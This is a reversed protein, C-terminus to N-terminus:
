QDMENMDEEDWEWDSFENDYDDLGSSEVPYSSPTCAMYAVGSNHGSCECTYNDSPVASKAVRKAFITALRKIPYKREPMLKRASFISGNTEMALPTCIGLNSKPITLAHRTEADGEPFRKSYVMERDMGFFHRLKRTKEFDFETDALIHLNVGEEQMFQLISSYDFLMNGAACNSCSLLIFTKSVGPRFDLRSAVSIAQLIDSNTGNNANIHDFYQELKQHDHTFVSNEYYISRPTDFPAVGGFTVVAYRNNTIGNARLQEEITDVVTMINKNEKLNVNCPKAEVIFVVDSSRPIEPAALEVFTGEPVYSGNTLQCFICKDPVRMPIKSSACAEIYALAATCAGKNAPHGQKVENSNSGLDLCIEYFPKPDVTDACASLMGSKFYYDCVASVEQPVVVQVTAPKMKQKCGKVSWSDTFESLDTTINNYSTTYEDFPENNMTGLLGATQGFYWGSVEFWCLDFQVNCSLSFETDSTITLIDLERTITVGGLKLPLLYTPDGNITISDTGLDIEILQDNAIFSLKRTSVVDRSSVNVSPELLLTFNGQFFDHSLLYSCQMNRHNDTMEEFRLNLGVFRQDFTMYHRSDILLARSYYPPLWTKPDLHSKLNYIYRIVSSNTTTLVNQIKALVRLEPIEEYRPTENFAHWSMPLKQELDMVGAEPDFVFKTKPVRYKDATELANNAYNNLKNLLLAYLKHLRTELELEKAVWELKEVIEKYKQIVFNVQEIKQLEKIEEWIETLVENLETGFPVLKFYKEKLFNWIIVSYKRINTIADNSKIDRYLRDVDQTFSSVKNFYPSEALENTRKYIFDFLEKSLDWLASEVQSIFKFVHPEIRKFVGKWYNTLNAWAKAWLNEVYKIFSIHLDKVFRDYKHVGQELLESVYQLGEGRFFRGVHILFENYSKKINEILWKISERLAQGSDGMSQWIESFIKPLSEIHDKIALEDLIALLFNIVDKIYFDNAEYSENIFNRLETIDDELESLERLDDFFASNYRKATDWMIDMSEVAESYIAKIWFDLGDSFSSYIGSSVTFIKEKLEEKMQPRWHFRGTVLRSHNMKLYSTVDIIRIEEYNRWIDLYASRTDPITGIMQLNQSDDETLNVEARIFKNLLDIYIYGTNNTEPTDWVSANFGYIPHQIYPKGYLRVCRSPTTRIYEFQKEDLNLLALLQGSKETFYQKKYSASAETKYESPKAAMSGNFQLDIDSAEHNAYVKVTYNAHGLEKQLDKILAGMKIAHTEDNAYDIVLNTNLLEVVGRYYKGKISVDKELYPHGITFVVTQHDLDVGETLPQKKWDLGTRVSKMDDDLYTNWKFVANSVIHDDTVSYSGEAGLNRKPYSLGVVYDHSVVGDRTKNTLELNYALWADESLELRSSGKIKNPAVNDYSSTWVVTRNPHSAVLKVEHGSPKAVHTLEGSLKFNGANKLEYVELRKVDVLEQPKSKDQKNVYKIGLPKMENELTIDRTVTTVAGKTDKVSKYVGNLVQKDNYKAKIVGNDNGNKERLNYEIEARHRSLLPVEIEINGKAESQGAKENFTSQSKFFAKDSPWSAQAHRITKPGKTNFDFETKLWSMTPLPTSANFYGHMNSLDKFALNLDALQNSAPSAMSAVVNHFKDAVDYSGKVLFTDEDKYKPTVLKTYFERRLKNKRLMHFDGEVVSVDKKEGWELHALAQLDTANKYSVRGLCNKQADKSKYKGEIFFEPKVGKKAILNGRYRFNLNHTDGVPKPLLTVLAAQIDDQSKYNLTGNAELKWQSDVDMKVATSLKQFNKNPNMYKASALVNRPKTNPRQLHSELALQMNEALIWTWACSGRGVNEGIRYEGAVKGGDKKLNLDSHLKVNEIGLEKWPTELSVDGVTHGKGRPRFQGNFNIRKLEPVSSEVLMSFDAGTEESASYGGSIQCMKGEQIASFQFNHGKGNGQPESISFEIVGDPGGASPQVRLRTDAPYGNVMKVIGNLGYTHTNRYLKGSISYENPDKPSQTLSGHMSINRFDEIPTWVEVDIADNKNSARTGYDVREGNRGVVTLDFSLEPHPKTLVKLSTEALKLPLMTTSIHGNANVLHSPDKHWATGVKIENVVDNDTVSLQFDVTNDKDNFDNKFYARCAYYPVVDTNLVFDVSSETFSEEIELAAALTVFTSPTHSTLNGRYVNEELQLKGSVSMESLMMLPTKVVIQVTHENPKVSDVLKKYEVQVSTVKPESSSDRLVFKVNESFTFQNLDFSYQVISKFERVADFPTNLTFVNLANVYDPYYLRDKFDIRGEPWQVHGVVLYFDLVEQIDVGGHLSDFVVPDVEFNVTYSMFENYDVQSPDYDRPDVGSPRFDDDYLVELQVKNGGLQKLLKSKPHGNIKVGGKHQALRGHLELVFQDKAVFKAVFGSEEFGALPTYVTYSYEFDTINDMRWVGTFGLTANNYTGRVDVTTPKVKAVVAAQKFNEIPTAVSLKVDFDMISVFDALVEVGLAGDPSRVEAVVHRQKENLGFRAELNRYKELPTTIYITLKSDALKRIYGDVNFTFQRNDFDLTAAGKIDHKDSLSLQAALGGKRYGEFPTVIFVTGSINDNPGKKTVEWTSKVSYENLEVPGSHILSVLTDYKKKDQYHSLKISAEPIGKVTSNVGVLFDVSLVPGQMKHDSKFTLDLEQNDAWLLTSNALWLNDSSYLGAKFSNHRWGQFPTNLEAHVWNNIEKGPMLGVNYSFTILDNTSWSLRASGHYQPGGTFAEFGASITRDPYTIMVNGDYRDNGPNNFEVLLALRQAPDRNADWKLEFNLEKRKDLDVVNAKIHIDRLKDLHIEVQLSKPQESLKAIAWYEKDKLKLRVEGNSNKNAANENYQVTLAYPDKDYKSQVDFTFLQQNRRYVVNITTPKFSPSEVIIKANHLAQVRSSKDKYNGKVSVSHGTFWSGSLNVQYNKAPAETLKVRATCSDFEPVTINFYADVAFLNRRPLHISFLGTAEKEPAYRLGLVVNHETGNKTREEHKFSVKYDMKSKPVKIEFSARTNSGEAAQDENYNRAFILRMTSAQKADLFKPGTNFTLKGETHGQLSLWTADGIFNLKPYASSTLKANGQYETKSKDGTNQLKAEFNITEVKNSQFRYNISLNTSTTVENQVFEGKVVAQLKKTEFSLEFGNQSIGNKENVRISGILGTVNVGNIALLMKPKYMLTTRDQWRVLQVNLDFNRKGNTDMYVDLRRDNPHNYYNCGAAVESRGSVMSLTAKFNDRQSVVKTLAERKISSGPTHFMLSWVSDEKGKKEFKYDFVYKHASPDSKKLKVNFDMPGSLLLGPYVKDEGGATVDPVSFDSCLQLGIAKELVPWTCSSNSRRHEIGKQPVEKDKYLVLLESRASFIENTEQPLDFTFSVDDKGRIKLSAEIESNSYVNSKVKIGTGAYFFDSQMSTIVDVSVSPKFKGNVDYNLEEEAGLKEFNGFMRMDISSAGYAHIALPLGVALPVNYSTDLFVRSKSFTVEQGSLLKSIHDIPDFDKFRDFLEMAEEMSYYRVDNGFIRLGIQASQKGHNNGNQYGIDKVQTRVQQKRNRAPPAARRPRYLEEEFNYNDEEVEEVVNDPSVPVDRKFRFNDLNLYNNLAGAGEPNEPNVMNTLFALKEGFFESNFPGQAGFLGSIAQEFGEARASIEFFNVSQGFLETTFNWNAMRPLYSDTGFIVNLDTTAGVNYEDFFVSFDYNRSFKRIDLKFKEPLDDAQLLGQVELRTPSSSKALNKLHSYVFSGVQNVEERQLTQKIRGVSQYDPCRMAQLYALSRVESNLNFKGYTDLFFPRYKMCDVRRFALVSELRLELNNSENSIIDQLQAAFTDSVVGINGLGKLIVVMRERNRREGKFMNFLSLFETELLNVIRKIKNNQGCNEHHKCYNHVVASAGLTYEANAKKRSFELITFFTDLTTEDPRQIFSMSTMWSRAIKEDFKDDVIQDRMVQYSATSGIYPLSELVHNRGNECISGSRQLLQNLAKYDLHKTTQLFKTFVDIFERQIKPSGAACMQKLLERSAKIEGHTPKVSPTHDFTLPSRKKIDKANQDLFEGPSYNQEGKFELGYHVTTVAGSQKKSFPILQHREFCSIERYIHNDITLNCYSETDLVPFVSNDGGSFAYPVTQLFSHTSFRSHCSRIDKEKRITVFANATSALTYQVGCTGSVDTETTNFDVDFRVMTNQFASLIGKKFNLVWAAESQDPCVENILGDHFDFRLVNKTLDQQLAQTKAHQGAGNKDDSLQASTIRLFGECPKPFLLEVEAKVSLDSTDDGTGAFETTVQANYEYKYISDSYGFKNNQNDCQPRGCVKPNKLPNQRAASATSIVLVLLLFSASRLAQLKM